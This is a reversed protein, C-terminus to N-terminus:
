KAVGYKLKGLKDETKHECTGRYNFFVFVKAIAINDLTVNNSLETSM